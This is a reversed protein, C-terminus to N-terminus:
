WCRWRPPGTTISELEVDRVTQCRWGTEQVLYLRPLALALVMVGLLAACEARRLQRAPRKLALAAMGWVAPLFLYMFTTNLPILTSRLIFLYAAVGPLWGLWFLVRRVGRGAEQHRDCWFTWGGALTAALYMHRFDFSVTHLSYAMCWLTLLITFYWLANEVWRALGRREGFIMEAAALAVAALGPVWCTQLVQAAQGALVALREGTTFDYQPDNLILNAQALLAAFDFGLGQLVYVVFAGGCAACVAIFTVAGHMKDDTKRGLLVLGVLYVPAAVISQPYALFSFCALVAGLAVRWLGRHQKAGPAYYSYLCLFAALAFTFQQATYDPALFWKPTYLFTGLALLYAATKGLPERLSRYLWVGLAAKCALMVARAFLMVGTSSGTVALWLGVLLAGPLASLQHPEWMTAFLRDGRVLRFGISLAYEEDIELGTFLTHAMAAAALLALLVATIRKIKATDKM